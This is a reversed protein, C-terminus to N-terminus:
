VRHSSDMSHFPKTESDKHLLYGRTRIGHENALEIISPISSTEENKARLFFFTQLKHFLPPFPSKADPLLSNILSPIRTPFLLSLCALEHGSDVVVDSHM